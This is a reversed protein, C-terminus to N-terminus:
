QSAFLACCACLRCVDAYAASRPCSLTFASDSRDEVQRDPTSRAAGVWRSNRWAMTTQCSLSAWPARTPPAHWTAQRRRSHTVPMHLCARPPSAQSSAALRGAIKCCTGDAHAWLEVHMRLVCVYVHVVASGGVACLCAGRCAHSHARVTVLHNCVHLTCVQAQLTDCECGQRHM